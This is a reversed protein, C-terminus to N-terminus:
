VWCCERSSICVRDRGRIRVAPLVEESGVSSAAKRKISPMLLQSVIDIIGTEYPCFDTCFKSIDLKTAKRYQEDYVDRGERGFTAPECANILNLFAPDKTTETPLRLTQGQGPAGYRITIPRTLVVQDSVRSEIDSKTNESTNTSDLIIPIHGGCAFTSESDAEGLARSFSELLQQESM